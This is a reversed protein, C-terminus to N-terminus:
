CPGVGLERGVTRADPLSGKADSAQLSVSFEAVDGEPQGTTLAQQDSERHNWRSTNPAPDREREPFSLVAFSDIAAREDSVPSGERHIPLGAM